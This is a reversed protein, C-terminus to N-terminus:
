ITYIKHQPVIQSNSEIRKIQSCTSLIPKRAGRQPFHLDLIQVLLMLDLIQNFIGYSHRVPKWICDCKNVVVRSQGISPYM